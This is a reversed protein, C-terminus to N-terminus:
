PARTIRIQGWRSAGQGGEPEVDAFLLRTRELSDMPVVRSDWFPLDWPDQGALRVRVRFGRRTIEARVQYTQGAQLM